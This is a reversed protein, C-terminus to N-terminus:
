QHGAIGDTEPMAPWPLGAGALAARIRERAEGTTGMPFVGHVGTKLLLEILRELGPADLAGDPTLPTVLPAIIGRPPRPLESPM